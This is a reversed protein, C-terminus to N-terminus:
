TALLSELPRSHCPIETLVVGITFSTIGHAHVCAHVDVEIDLKQGLDDDVRAHDHFISFM